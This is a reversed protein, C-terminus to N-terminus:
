FLLGFSYSKLFVTGPLLARLIPVATTADCSGKLRRAFRNGPGNFIREPKLYPGDPILQALIKCSGQFHHGSM